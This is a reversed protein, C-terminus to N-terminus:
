PGVRSCFPCQFESFEVITVPADARGKQPDKASVPVSAASHDPVNGAAAATAGEAQISPGQGRDIGWMLFMGALFSMIFGVIATGKNMFSVGLFDFQRVISHLFFDLFAARATARSRAPALWRFAM